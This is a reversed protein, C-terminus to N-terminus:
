NSFKIFQLICAWVVTFYIFRVIKDIFVMKKSTYNDYYYLVYNNFKAKEDKPNWITLILKIIIWFIIM